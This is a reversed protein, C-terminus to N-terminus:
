PRQMCVEEQCYVDVLYRVKPMGPHHPDEEFREQVSHFLLCLGYILVTSAGMCEVVLLM